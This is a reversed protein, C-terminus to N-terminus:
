DTESEVSMQIFDWVYQELQNQKFDFWQQRCESNEVLYKFNAFPKKRNLADILKERLHNDTVEDIFYEMIKFSEHSEMPEIEICNKWNTHKLKLSNASEGTMMEYEEPDLVMTEPLDEIELTDPNFYCILGASLSGAIEHVVKKYKEPIEDPKPEVYIEELLFHHIKELANKDEFITRIIGLIENQLQNKNM